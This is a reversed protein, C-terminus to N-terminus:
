ATCRKLFTCKLLSGSRQFVCWPECILFPSFLLFRSAAQLHGSSQLQKEQWGPSVSGQQICRTGRGWLRGATPPSVGGTGRRGDGDSCHRLAAPHSRVQLAGMERSSAAERGAGRETSVAKQNEGGRPPCVSV